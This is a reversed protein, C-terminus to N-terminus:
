PSGAPRDDCAGLPLVQEGVRCAAVPSFPLPTTAGTRTSTIAGGSALLAGDASFVPGSSPDM